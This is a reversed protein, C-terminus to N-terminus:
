TICRLTVPMLDTQAGLTKDPFHVLLLRYDRFMETGYNIVRSSQLYKETDNLARRGSGLYFAINGARVLDYLAEFIRTHGSVQLKRCHMKNSSSGDNPDVQELEAVQGVLLTDGNALHLDTSSFDEGQMIRM